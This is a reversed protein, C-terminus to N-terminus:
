QYWIIQIAIFTRWWKCLKDKETRRLRKEWRLGEWDSIQRRQVKWCTPIRFGITLFIKPKSWTLPPPWLPYINLFLYNPITEKKILWILKQVLTASIHIFSMYTNINGFQWFHLYKFFGYTFIKQSVYTWGVSTNCLKCFIDRVRHKGTALIKDEAPGTFVNM